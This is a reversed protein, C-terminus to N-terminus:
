GELKEGLLRRICVDAFAGFLYGIVVGLLLFIIESVM